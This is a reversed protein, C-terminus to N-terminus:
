INLFPIDKGSSTTKITNNRQIQRLKKMISKVPHGYYNKGVSIPIEIRPFHKRWDKVDICGASGGHHPAVMVVRDKPAIKSTVSNLIKPYHHDGTLLAKGNEGDAVIVIGAQNRSKGPTARFINFPGVTNECILDISKSRDGNIKKSPPMTLFPIGNLHLKELIRRYTVTDPIQSPGVIVQLNDFDDQEFALLAQYHDLDWHSIFVVKTKNGLAERRSEVLDVVEHKKYIKSAGVDYILVFSGSHLENWNGQGCNVVFLDFKKELEFSENFIIENTEIYKPPVYHESFDIYESPLIVNSRLYLEGPDGEAYTAYQVQQSEFLSFPVTYWCGTQLGKYPKHNYAVTAMTTPRSDDFREQHSTEIRSIGSIDEFDILATKTYERNELFKSGSPFSSDEVYIKIRKECISIRRPVSDKKPATENFIKFNHSVNQIIKTEDLARQPKSLQNKLCEDIPDSGNPEIGWISAGDSESLGNETSM